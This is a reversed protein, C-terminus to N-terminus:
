SASREAGVVTVGARDIGTVGGGSHCMHGGDAGATIIFVEAAFVIEARRGTGAFARRPRVDDIAIRASRIDAVGRSSVDGVRYNGDPRTTRIAIRAVAVVLGTLQERDAVEGDFRVRGEVTCVVAVVDPRRGDDLQGIDAQARTQLEM